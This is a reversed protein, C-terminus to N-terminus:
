NLNLPLKPLNTESFFPLDKMIPIYKFPCTLKKNELMIVVNHIKQM